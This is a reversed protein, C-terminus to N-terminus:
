MHKATHDLIGTILSQHKHHGMLMVFGADGSRVGCGANDGTGRMM